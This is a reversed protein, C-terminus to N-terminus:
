YYFGRFRPAATPATTEGNLSDKNASTDAMAAIFVGAATNELPDPIEPANVLPNTTEPIPTLTESTVDPSGEVVTPVMIETNEAVEVSKTKNGRSGSQGHNVADREPPQGRRGLQLHSSVGTLCDM